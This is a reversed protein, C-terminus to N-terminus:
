LCSKLIPLIAKLNDVVRDYPVTNGLTRLNFVFSWIQAIKFDEECQKFSYDTVGNICLIKHYRKLWYTELKRRVNVDVSNYLLFAIDILGNGLCLCQWDILVVESENFMINNTWLDAHCLTHPGGAFKDLLTPIQTELTSIYSYANL